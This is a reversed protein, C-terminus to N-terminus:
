STNRTDWSLMYSSGSSTTEKYYPCSFQSSANFGNTRWNGGSGMEQLADGGGSTKGLYIPSATDGMLEASCSSTDSETEFEGSNTQPTTFMSQGDYRAECHSYTSGCNDAIDYYYKFAGANYFTSIQFYTYLGDTDLSDNVDYYTFYTETGGVFIAIFRTFTASTDGPMVVHMRGIQVLDASGDSQIGIWTAVFAPEEGAGSICLHGDRRLELPARVGRTVGDSAHYGAGALNGADTDCSPLTAGANPQAYFLFSLLLALIATLRCGARTM